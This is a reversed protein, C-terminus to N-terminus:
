GRGPQRISAGFGALDNLLCFFCRWGGACLVGHRRRVDLLFYVIIYDNGRERGKFSIWERHWETTCKIGDM